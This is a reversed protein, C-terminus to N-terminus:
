YNRHQSRGNSRNNYIYIIFVYEEDVTPHFTTGFLDMMKTTSPLDIVFSNPPVFAGRPVKVGEFVKSNKGVYTGIHVSAGTGIHVNNGIIFEGSRISSPKDSSGEGNAITVQEFNM